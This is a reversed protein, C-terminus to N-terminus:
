LSGEEVSPMPRSCLDIAAKIKAQSEPDPKSYPIEPEPPRQDYYMRPADRLQVTGANPEAWDTWSSMFSSFHKVLQPETGAGKLHASYRQVAGLLKEYDEQTKIQGVCIEIGLKKGEKRPYAQYIKEFDFRHTAQHTTL